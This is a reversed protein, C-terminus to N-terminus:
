QGMKMKARVDHACNSAYERHQEGQGAIHEYIDLADQWDGGQDLKGAERFMEDITPGRDLWEVISEDARIPGSVHHSSRRQM